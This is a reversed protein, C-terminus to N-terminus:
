EHLLEKYCYVENKLNMYEQTYQFEELDFLSMIEEKSIDWKPKINPISTVLGQTVLLYTRVIECKNRHRLFSVPNGIYISDSKLNGSVVAGAGVLVRNEINSGPLIICGHGIWVNSGIHISLKDISFGKIPCHTIIRTSGGIVSNNGISVAKAAKTDISSFEGMRCGNGIKVGKKRYADMTLLGRDFRSM